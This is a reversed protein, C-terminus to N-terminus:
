GHLVDVWACRDVAPAIEREARRLDEPTDIDMWPLGACDVALVPWTRALHAWAITARAMPDGTAMLHDLVPVLRRAGERGLRVLGVDVGSALHPPLHNGIDAVYPGATRVNTTDKQASRTSDFLLADPAPAELLRDLPTGCFLLDGNIILGGGELESAALWLSYLSDTERFYCNEVFRVRHTLYDRLVHQQYGAVVVVSRYDARELISLQREILLQGGPSLMTKPRDGTLSGM